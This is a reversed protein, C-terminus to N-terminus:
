PCFSVFLGNLSIVFCRDLSSFTIVIMMYALSHHNTNLHVTMQELCLWIHSSKFVNPARLEVTFYVKIGCGGGSHLEWSTNQSSLSTLPHLVPSYCIEAKEKLFCCCIWDSTASLTCYYRYMISGEKQEAHLSPIHLFSILVQIIRQTVKLCFLKKM